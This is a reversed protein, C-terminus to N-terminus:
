APREEAAEKYNKCQTLSLRDVTKQEANQKENLSTLSPKLTKLSYFSNSYAHENCSVKKNKVWQLPQLLQRSVPPSTKERSAGRLHFM